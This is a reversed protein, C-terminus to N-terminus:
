GMSYEIHKIILVEFKRIQNKKEKVKGMRM